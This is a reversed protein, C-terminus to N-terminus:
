PAPGFGLLLPTKGSDTLSKNLLAPVAGDESAQHFSAELQYRTQQEYEDRRWVPQRKPWPGLAGARITHISSRGLGALHCMSRMRSLPCM